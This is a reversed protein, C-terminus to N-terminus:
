GAKKIRRTGKRCGKELDPILLVKVWPEGGRGFLIGRQSRVTVRFPRGMNSEKKLM